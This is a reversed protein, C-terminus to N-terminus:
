WQVAHSLAPLMLASFCALSALNRLSACRNEPLGALLAAMHAAKESCLTRFPLILMAAGQRQRQEALACLRRLMLIEAVLSKGGSTPACYVLNAGDLVGPLQLCEAQPLLRGSLVSEMPPRM